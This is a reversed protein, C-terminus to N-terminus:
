EIPITPATGQLTRAEQPTLKGVGARMMRYAQAESIRKGGVAGEHTIDSVSPVHVLGAGPVFLRPIGQDDKAAVGYPATDGHDQLKWFQM